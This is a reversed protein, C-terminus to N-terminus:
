THNLTSDLEALKQRVREMADQHPGYGVRKQLVSEHHGHTYIARQEDSM